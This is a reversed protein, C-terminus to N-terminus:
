SGSRRPSPRNAALAVATSAQRDVWETVATKQTESLRHLTVRAQELATSRMTAYALALLAVAVLICLGVMALPVKIRIPLSVRKM